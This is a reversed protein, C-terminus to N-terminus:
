RIGVSLWPFTVKESGALDVLYLNGSKQSGTEVNKQHIGVVFISHSRSSEANMNTASIARAKGGAKMVAYVESDSGVYVDTLGKVYVGRTKDEHISLNDNAPALLDRIREMYIEMYSVKVTYEVNGDAMAISAFIQETIRPILGKMQVNEIDSGMMTFTKGSGTQGYCFLTGNFGMMVDEVIGKVGFDFIEVQQSDSPFVRDFTFGDKEPGPLAGDSGGGGSGGGSALRSKMRVTTLNEDVDICEESQADTEMRNMPRFRCVVKINNGNSGAASAGPITM